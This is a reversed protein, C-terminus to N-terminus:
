SGPLLVLLLNALGRLLTSVRPDGRAVRGAAEIRIREPTLARIVAEPCQLCQGEFDVVTNQPLPAIEYVLDPGEPRDRIAPNPRSAASARIDFVRASLRWNAAERPLRARVVSQDVNGTNGVSLRARATCVREGAVDRCGFVNVDLAYHVERKPLFTAAFALV